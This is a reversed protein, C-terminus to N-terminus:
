RPYVPMQYARKVVEESTGSMLWDGGREGIRWVNRATKVIVYLNNVIISNDKIRMKKTKKLDQNFM